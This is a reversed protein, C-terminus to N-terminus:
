LLVDDLYSGLPLSDPVHEASPPTSLGPLGIFEEISAQAARAEEIAEQSATHIDRLERARTLLAEATQLLPTVRFIRSAQTLTSLLDVLRGRCAELRLRDIQLEREEAFLLNNLIFSRYRPQLDAIVSQAGFADDGRSRFVDLESSDPAIAHARIQPLCDATASAPLVLISRAGVLGSLSNPGGGM